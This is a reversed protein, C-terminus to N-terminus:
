QRRCIRPDISRISFRPGNEPVNHRIAPDVTPGAPILTLGCVVTPTTAVRLEPRQNLTAAPFLLRPAASHGKPALGITPQQAAISASAIHVVAVFSVIAAIRM